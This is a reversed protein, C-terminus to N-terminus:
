GISLNVADRTLGASSQGTRTAQQEGSLQREHVLERSTTKGKALLPRYEIVDVDYTHSM